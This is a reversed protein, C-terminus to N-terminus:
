KWCSSDMLACFLCHYAAATLSFSRRWIKNRRRVLFFLRKEQRQRWKVQQRGGFGECSQARRLPAAAVKANGAADNEKRHMDSVPSSSSSISKARSPNETREHHPTHSHGITQNRRNTIKKDQPKRYWRNPKKKSSELLKKQLKLFIQISCFTAKSITWLQTSEPMMTKHSAIIENKLLKEDNKWSVDYRSSMNHHDGLM